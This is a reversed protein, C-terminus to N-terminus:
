FLFLKWPAPTLCGINNSWIHKTQGVVSSTSTSFPSNVVSTQGSLLDAYRYQHQGSFAVSSSFLDWDKVNIDDRTSAICLSSKKPPAHLAVAYTEWLTKNSQGLWATAM